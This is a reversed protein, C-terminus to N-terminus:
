RTASRDGNDGLVVIVLLVDPLGAGTTGELDGFVGLALLEATTGADDKVELILLHVVQVLALDLLNDLLM